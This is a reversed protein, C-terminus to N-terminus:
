PIYCPPPLGASAALQARVHADIAGPTMGGTDTGGVVITAEARARAPEDCEFTVGVLDGDLGLAYVIETAAPLLSVLRM